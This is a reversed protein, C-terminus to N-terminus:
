ESAMLPRPASTLKRLTGDLREVLGRDGPVYKSSIKRKPEEKSKQENSETGNEEAKSRTQDTDDNSNEINEKNSNSSELDNGEGAM